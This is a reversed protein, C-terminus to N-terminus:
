PDLPLVLCRVPATVEHGAWMAPLHLPQFELPKAPLTSIGLGCMVVAAGAVAPDLLLVLCRHEPGAFPARGRFGFIRSGDAKMDRCEIRRDSPKGPSIDGPHALYRRGVLGLAGELIGHEALSPDLGALRRVPWPEILPALGPLDASHRSA